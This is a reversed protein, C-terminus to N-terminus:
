RSESSLDDPHERWQKLIKMDQTTIYGCALAEKILTIYNTLTYLICDSKEFRHRSIDFGYSFIAAMGLVDAGAKRLTAVTALSSGGTSILDEIVVVKSNAPLYGEIINGLGHTKPIPRVYIFPKKLVEAVLAGYAIAGTAVGAIVDVTKFHKQVINTLSKYIRKRVDPYSLTIRNDCYIPSRWGSVWVFPKEVNLKVANIQLLERAIIKEKSNM